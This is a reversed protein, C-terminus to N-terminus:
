LTVYHASELFLRHIRRFNPYFLLNKRRGGSATPHPRRSAGAAPFSPHTWVAFPVRQPKPADRMNDAQMRRPEPRKGAGYIVEAIGQRLARHSDLKAFGLDRFPEGRLKTMVEDVDAAGASLRELLNRLEKREM